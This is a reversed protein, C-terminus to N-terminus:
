KVEKLAVTCWGLGTTMDAGIQLLNNEKDIREELKVLADEDGKRASFVAYFLTESPVNEQSFLAGDGGRGDQRRHPQPERDRM